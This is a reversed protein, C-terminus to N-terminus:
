RRQQAKKPPLIIRPKAAQKTPIRPKPASAVIAVVMDAQLSVLSAPEPPAPPEVAAAPLPPLTLAAPPELLAPLPPPLASSHPKWVGAHLAHKPSLHSASAVAQLSMSSQAVAKYVSALAQTQSGAFSGAVHMLSKTDSFPSGAFSKAVQKLVL